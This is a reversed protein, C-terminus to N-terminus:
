THYIVMAKYIVHLYFYIHATIFITYGLFHLTKLVHPECLPYLILSEISLIDQDNYFHQLHIALKQNVSM